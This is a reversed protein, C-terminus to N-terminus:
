PMAITAGEDVAPDGPVRDDNYAVVDLNEDLLVLLPDFAGADLDLRVATSDTLRFAYADLFEGGEYEPFRGAELACDTDVLSGSVSGGMNALAVADCGLAAALAATDIEGPPTTGPPTTEP